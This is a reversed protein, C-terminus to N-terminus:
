MSVLKGRIAAIVSPDLTAFEKTGHVTSKVLTEKSFLKDSLCLAMATPKSASKTFEYDEKALQVESSGGGGGGM